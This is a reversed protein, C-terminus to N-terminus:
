QRDRAVVHETRQSFETRQLRDRYTQRSDRDKVVVHEM